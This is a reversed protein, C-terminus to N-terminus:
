HALELSREYELHATCVAQANGEEEYSPLPRDREARWRERDAEHRSGRERARGAAGRSLLAQARQATQAM